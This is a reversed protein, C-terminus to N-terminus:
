DRVGTGGRAKRTARKARPKRAPVDHNEGTPSQQTEPIASGARRDSESEEVLTSVGGVKRVVVRAEFQAGLEADHDVVFVSSKERALHQLLELVAERGSTDLHRFLEDLILVDYHKRARSAVLSALGLDIGLSVRQKEGGSWSKYNRERVTGDPMYRFVRVNLKNRLTGTSRGMTQTEIRVWITGGTLIKVWHNAADTIAQLKTDLVYNKLGRPGFAETWFALYEADTTAVAKKARLDVEVARAIKVAERNLVEQQVFPNTQARMAAISASMESLQKSAMRHAAVEREASLVATTLSGVSTAHERQREALQAQLAVLATEIMSKRQNSYAAAQEASAAHQTLLSIESQM